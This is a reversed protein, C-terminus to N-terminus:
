GRGKTEVVAVEKWDELQLTIHWNGAEREIRCRDGADKDRGDLGFVRVVPENDQEWFTDLSVCSLIREKGLIWGKHLAVPTLPFMHNIPGYAGSGPGSEPIDTGYHYWLLGHRLYMVVAKM